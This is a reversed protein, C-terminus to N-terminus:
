YVKRAKRVQDPRIWGQQAFFESLYRVVQDGSAAAMRAVDSKYTKVGSVAANAVVMGATVGGQAVAGAGLTPAAGPLKGSDSHTAFELLKRADEGQYVQVQSDVTSTGNGFGIVLRQLPNGEDVTFFYGDILLDNGTARSGRSVREATFGLARLGGIVEEALADKVEAALQREREVPDKITPQQRMIGQYETIERESVAFDAVLIRSPRPLNKEQTLRVNRVGTQGCASIFVLALAGSSIHMLIKTMTTRREANASVATAPNVRSSLFRENGQPTTCGVAQLRISLLIGSCQINSRPGHRMSVRCPTLTENQLAEREIAKM